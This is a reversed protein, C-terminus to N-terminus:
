PTGRGVALIGEYVLLALIAIVEIAWLTPFPVAERATPLKVLLHGAFLILRRLVWIHSILKEFFEDFACLVFLTWETFEPYFLRFPAIV